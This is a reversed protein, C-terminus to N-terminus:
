QTSKLWKIKGVYAKVLEFEEPIVFKAQYVRSIKWLEICNRVDVQDHYSRFKRLEIPPYQSLQLVLHQPQGIQLHCRHANYLVLEKSGVLRLDVGAGPRTKLKLKNLAESFFLFELVPLNSLFECWESRSRVLMTKIIMKDTYHLADKIRFIPN